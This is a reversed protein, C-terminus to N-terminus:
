NLVTVVCFPAGHQQLVSETEPEECSKERRTLSNNFKPTKLVTAFVVFQLFKFKKVMLILEKRLSNLIKSRDHQIYKIHQKHEFAIIFYSLAIFCFTYKLIILASDHENMFIQMEKLM